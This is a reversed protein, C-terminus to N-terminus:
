ALSVTQGTEASRVGLEILEMVQIAQEATVPNEGIGHLADRIAAYYHPYNGPVTPLTKEVLGDSTALTLVGDRLAYGWEAQPPYDGAKLHAEQPDMDYKVYSGKTGHLQFRPQPAAVLASSHLVVRRQPYILTAHFYDTTVADPRLKAMDVHIAQPLGFLQVAQDLM